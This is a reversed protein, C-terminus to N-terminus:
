KPEGTKGTALYTDAAREFAEALTFATHSIMSPDQVWMERATDIVRLRFEREASEWADLEAQLEKVQKELTDARKAEESSLRALGPEGTRRNEVFLSLSRRFAEEAKEKTEELRRRKGEITM